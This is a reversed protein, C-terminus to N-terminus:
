IKGVQLATVKRWEWPAVAQESWLGRRASQAEDQLGQLHEYGRGYKV